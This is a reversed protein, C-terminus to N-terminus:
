WKYGSCRRNCVFSCQRCQIFRFWPHGSSAAVQVGPAKGSLVSEFSMVPADKLADDKVVTASGSYSGKKVTGYAVVMVDDLVETDPPLIANVVAKGNVPIEITKFGISSFVLVADNPVNDLAYEGNDDSTAIMQTGKVVISAFSVASGDEASSVKGTIRSQAFLLGSTLVALALLFLKRM